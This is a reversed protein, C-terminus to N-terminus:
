QLVVTQLEFDDYRFRAFSYEFIVGSSLYGIQEVEIYPEQETLGLYQQELQSSLHGRITKHSSQIKLNLDKEVYEYISHHLHDLKLNPIISIPMYMIEISYPKNEIKRYRIIHYVFSGEEIQLKKSIEEDSPIVEFTIIDNKIEQGHYLKSLHSASPHDNSPDYDKVFTGAGRRRVILGEKVLIDLAKKMTEKNCHYSVCLVYEYPLKQGYTYKQERIKQRIDDAIDIYKVM